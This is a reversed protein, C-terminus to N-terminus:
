RCRSSACRCRSASSRVPGSTAAASGRAPDAGARGPRAGRTCARQRPQANSLRAALGEAAILFGAFYQTLLALASFVAWWVISRAYEPGALRPRLVAALRSCLVVLLMYERAEQSYWIMFPNVAAFAAAVLGARRQSRARSRVPLDLPISRSASCRRCRGCGPKAPVSCRRGRGRSWSTCRHTRSARAGRTSCRGSRCTCSTSPRHRTSGTARAPSTPSACCRASSRSGPWCGRRPRSELRGTNPGYPGRPRGGHPGAPAHPGLTCGSGRRNAVGGGLGCGAKASGFGIAAGSTITCGSAWFASVGATRGGTAGSRVRRM